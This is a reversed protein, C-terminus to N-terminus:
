CVSPWSGSMRPAVSLFRLLRWLEVSMWLFGTGALVDHKCSRSLLCLFLCLAGIGFLLEITGCM